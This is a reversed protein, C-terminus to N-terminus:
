ELLLSVRPRALYQAALERVRPEASEKSRARLANWAAPTDIQAVAWLAARRENETTARGLAALLPDLASTLKALPADPAAGPQPVRVARALLGLGHAAEVRVAADDDAVLRLLPPAAEARDLRGLAVALDARQPADAADIRGALLAVLGPSARRALSRVVHRRATRLAPDLLRAVLLDDTGPGGFAGAALVVGAFDLDPKTRPVRLAATVADRLTETVVERLADEHRLLDRGASSAVGSATASLSAIAHAALGAPRAVRGDTGLCAAYDRVYAALEAVGAEATPRVAWPLELPACDAPAPGGPQATTLFVLFRGNRAVATRGVPLRVRLRAATEAGRFAEDVRFTWVSTAGGPEPTEALATALAAVDARETLAGVTIADTDTTEAAARGPVGLVAAAVAVAAALVLRALPRAAPRRM